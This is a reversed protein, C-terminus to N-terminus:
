ESKVELLEWTGSGPSLEWVKNLDLSLFHSKILTNILKHSVICITEDKHRALLKEVETIVRDYAEKIGEGKPPKSSLPNSEWKSYLKKHKKKADVVLMGQWLGQNIENLSNLPKVKLKHPKAIECATEYSRSLASSYVADAKMKRLQGALAKAQRHGQDNLPIDVEGQIRGALEWDTQGHCILILRTM